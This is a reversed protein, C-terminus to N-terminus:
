FIIKFHCETDGSLASQLLEVQVPKELAEEWMRKVLAKSCHCYTRSITQNTPLGNVLSCYCRIPHTFSLPTYIQIFVNQERKLKTGNMPQIEEARLFAEITPYKQRRKKFRMVAQQNIKACNQGCAEMIVIRQKEPVINDLREIAIKMWEALKKKNTSPNLVEAGEMVKKAVEEGAISKINGEFEKIMELQRQTM